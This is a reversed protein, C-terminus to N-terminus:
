TLAAKCYALCKRVEKVADSGEPIQYEQEITAPFPWKKTKGAPSDGQDSNRGQGVRPEVRLAAAVDSREPPLQSASTSGTSSTWRRAASKVPQSTIASTSTPRTVPPLPSPKTSLTWEARCTRTILPSCETSLAM